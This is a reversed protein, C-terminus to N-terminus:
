VRLPFIVLGESGCEQIVTSFVWFEVHLVSILFSKPWTESISGKMLNLYNKEIMPKQLVNLYKYIHFPLLTFEETDAEGTL